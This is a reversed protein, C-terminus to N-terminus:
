GGEVVFLHEPVSINYRLLGLNDLCKKYFSRYNWFRAYCRILFHMVWISRNKGRGLFSKQMYNATDDPDSHLETMSAAQETMKAMGAKVCQADKYTTHIGVNKNSLDAIAVYYNILKGDQAYGSNISQTIGPALTSEVSKFTIIQEADDYAEIGLLSAIRQYQEQSLSTLLSVLEEDSLAYIYALLEDDSMADFDPSELNETEETSEEKEDEDSEENEGESSGDYDEDTKEEPIEEPEEDPEGAEEDPLEGSDDGSEGTEEKPTEGNDESPESSEEEPVEESDGDSEEIKETPTEESYTETTIEDTDEAFVALPMAQLLMVVCLIVALVKRSTKRIQM